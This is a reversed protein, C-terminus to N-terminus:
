TYYNEQTRFKVLQDPREDFRRKLIIEFRLAHKWLLRTAEMIWFIDCSSTCPDHFIITMLWGNTISIKCM